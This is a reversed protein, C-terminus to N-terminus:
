KQESRIPLQVTFAAGEGRESSVSVSGDHMEVIKQVISLGLGSGGATRTRSQDAKYFREFIRTQDQPVIGPGSDTICVQVDDQIRTLGVEIKGGEPTFKIANHILNIWVQIMLDEDAVIEVEELEVNMDIKKDDWQPECALVLTVLQRDLRYSTKHSAQESSDLVALKMLNDSLRSLRVCETEIITLYQDRKEQDMNTDKLARAFGSISTLPSGIEHSVNSIFEQRLEEMVKLNAAMDNIGEVLQAFPHDHGQRGNRQVLASDLNVRFDGRSIRKLAQILENFFEYERGKVLPGILTIGVGFFIFGLMANILFAILEHPQWAIFSYVSRTIYFAATWCIFLALSVLIVNRAIHLFRPEGKM